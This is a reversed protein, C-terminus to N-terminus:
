VCVSVLSPFGIHCVAPLDEEDDVLGTFNDDLDETVWNEELDDDTQKRTQSKAAM